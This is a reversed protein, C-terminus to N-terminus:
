YAGASLAGMRAKPFCFRAFSINLMEKWLFSVEAAKHHTHCRVSPATGAPFFAYRVEDCSSTWDYYSQPGRCVSISLFSAWEVLIPPSQAGGVPLHRNWDVVAPRLQRSECGTQTHYNYTALDKLNRDKDAFYVRDGAHSFGKLKLIARNRKGWAHTGTLNLNVVMCPLAESLFALETAKKFFRSM